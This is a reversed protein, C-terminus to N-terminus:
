GDGAHGLGVRVGRLFPHRLLGLPSMPVMGQLGAEGGASYNFQYEDVPEVARNLPDHPSLTRFDTIMAHSVTFGAIASRLAACTSAAERMAARSNTSFGFASRRRSAVMHFTPRHVM